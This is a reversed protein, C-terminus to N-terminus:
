LLIGKMAETEKKTLQEAPPYRKAGQKNGDCYACSNLSVLNDIHLLLKKKEEISSDDLLDIYQTKDDPIINNKMRWFSRSCPHLETFNLDYYRGQRFLCSRAQNDIEDQSRHKLDHNRYDLWGGYKMTKKDFYEEIRHNINNIKLVKVINDIKASLPGYNSIIIRIKDKHKTCVRLLDDSFNLTGNTVIDVTNQIQSQYKLTEELIKPLEKNILPEGGTISFTGVMDVVEFYSKLVKKATEFNLNSPNKYYPIYALCLKCKLTCLSTIKFTTRNLNIKIDINNDLNKRKHKTEKNFKIKEM